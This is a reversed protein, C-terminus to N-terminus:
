SDNDDRYELKTLQMIGDFFGIAEATKLATREVSADDYTAGEGTAMQYEQGM